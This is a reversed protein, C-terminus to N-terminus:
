DAPECVDGIRDGDADAQDPNAVGPCNDNCDLWAGSRCRAAQGEDGIGDWDADAALGGRDMAMKLRWRGDAGIAVYWLRCRGFDCRLVSRAHRVEDDAGQSRLVVFSEGDFTHGGDDSATLVFAVPDGRRSLAWARGEREVFADPVDNPFIAALQAPGGARTFVGDAGAEAYGIGAAPQGPQAHGEYFLRAAGGGLPLVALGRVEWQEWAAAGAALLPRPSRELVDLGRGLRVSGLAAPGNAAPRGEHFVTLDGGDALAAFPATTQEDFRDAVRPLVPNGRAPTWHVADRSEYAYGVVTGRDTTVPTFLLWRDLRRVVSIGAPVAPEAWELVAGDPHRPWAARTFPVEAPGLDCPGFLGRSFTVIIGIQNGRADREIKGWLAAIQEGDHHVLVQGYNDGFVVSSRPAGGDRWWRHVMAGHGQDAAIQVIERGTWHVRGPRFGTFAPGPLMELDRSLRFPGIVLEGGTWVMPHVPDLDLNRVGLLNSFTTVTGDAAIRSLQYAQVDDGNRDEFWMVIWERGTWEIGGGQLREADPANLSVPVGVERGLADLRRFQLVNRAAAATAGLERGNWRAGSPTFPPAVAEGLWQGDASLRRFHNGNRSWFVAFADGVWWVSIGNVADAASFLRVDQILRAGERGLRTYWIETGGPTPLRWFAGYGGPIEEFALPFASQQSATLEVDPASRPAVDDPRGDCDDDLGNCVEVGPDICAGGECRCACQQVVRDGCGQADCEVVDGDADCARQGPVCACSGMACCECETEFTWACGDNRCREQGGQVCRTAGPECVLPHCRPAPCGEDAEGDCDNDLGDCVDGAAGAFPDCVPARGGQCGRLRQTCEGVGCVVDDIAEDTRGDCDDDADNCTEAAPAGAVADCVLGAPGDCVATGDRACAGTGADCRLGVGAVEEDTRGDCDDDGGDCIEARPERRPGDCVEFGDPGCAVLGASRCAGEGTVCDAGVSFDEDTVGDCDDDAGNCAEAEPGANEADCRLREGDCRMVGDRACAGVGGRCPAGGLGEDVTGDCDDDLGNCVEDGPVVEDACETFRGGVACVERGDRCAGVGASGPRGSYCPRVDGPECRCDGEVEDTRADCDDDLGNCVEVRPTVQRECAGLAGAECRRAGPACIGVGATEVPGDYCRAAADEDVQGDCDEDAGDCTEPAPVVEGACAGWEGDACESRGAVCRGVGATEPAGGYCARVLPRGDAEDVRGDCDDDAGNCAEEADPACVHGDPVAGDSATSADGVIGADAVGTDPAAGDGAGAELCRWGDDTQACRFGPACHHREERCDGGQADESVCAWAGGAEACRFGDACARAAERCDAVAADGGVAAADGGAAAGDNPEPECAFLFFGAWLVAVRRRM